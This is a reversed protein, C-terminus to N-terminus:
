EEEGGEIVEEIPPEDEGDMQAAAAPEEGNLMQTIAITLKQLHELEDKRIEEFISILAEDEVAEISESYECIAKAEEAIQKSVEIIERTTM